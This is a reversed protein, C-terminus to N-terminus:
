FYGEEWSKKPVIPQLADTQAVGDEIIISCEDGTSVRTAIAQLGQTQLWASFDKLTNVDMQELKDLLVFGCSPKIARVIATAVRLQESASMADWKHGLYTLEGDEVSLGQMPLRANHLLAYREKRAADLQASLETYEQKYAEAEQEARERDLNSRVQINIREINAIDQEIQATSEDRLEAVTKNAIAIDECLAAYRSELLSLSAQAEAIRNELVAKEQQMQALQGRKRQNEGNQALLMQQRQILESVSVPAAPADAYFPLEKAYKAKQEAVLGVAHRKNYLEKENREMRLLEDKVGIIQLLVDAKERSSANLFKPLNLALEEILSNLLQQGSRQGNPDTVKLTSNKGSREAVLGNSLTVRIRPPIASGEREANSPRLRDGGLAWAIADLVSTKGQGNNGGIVTLGQAAPLMSVAKVRKVNEVELAHIKISNNDNM